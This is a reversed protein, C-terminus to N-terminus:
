AWIPIDQKIIIKEEMLYHAVGESNSPSPTNTLEFYVGYDLMSLATSLDLDIKALQTEFQIKKLKDWLQAEIAPFDKM